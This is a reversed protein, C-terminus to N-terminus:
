DEDPPYEEIDSYDEGAHNEEYKKPAILKLIEPSYDGKVVGSNRQGWNLADLRANFPGFVKIENGFLHKIVVYMAQDERPPRNLAEILRGKEHPTIGVLQTALKDKKNM